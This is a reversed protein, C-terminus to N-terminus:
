FLARKVISSVYTFVEYPITGLCSAYEPVKPAQGYLVAQDCEQEKPVGSLDLMCMDM